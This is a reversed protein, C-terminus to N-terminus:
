QADKSSSLNDLIQRAIRIQESEPLKSIRSMVSAADDDIRADLSDDVESMRLGLVQCVYPLFKSREAAGKEIAVYSSQSLGGSLKRVKKVLEQQSIGLEKRRAKIIHGKIM